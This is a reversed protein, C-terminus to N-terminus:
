IPVQNFISSTVQFRQDEDTTNQIRKEM